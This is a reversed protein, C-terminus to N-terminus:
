VILIGIYFVNIFLLYFFFMFFIYMAYDEPCWSYSGDLLQRRVNFPGSFALIKSPIIWKLDGNKIREHLEFNDIDFKEFNFIYCKIAKDLAKLCDIVM